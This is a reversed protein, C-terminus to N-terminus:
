KALGGNEEVLRNFNNKFSKQTAGCITMPLKLNNVLVKAVYNGCLDKFVYCGKYEWTSDNIKKM